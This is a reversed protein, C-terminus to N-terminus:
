RDNEPGAELRATWLHGRWVSRAVVIRAGVFTAGSIQDGTTLTRLVAHTKADLELLETMGNGVLMRRGDSSYRAYHIGTRAGAALPVSKHTTLDLLRTAGAVEGSVYALVPSTPSGAPLRANEVVAVPPAHGDATVSAIGRHSVGDTAFYVAGDSGFTPQNDSGRTTLAHPPASGDLPMAWIGKEVATFAVWKADASVAPEVPSLGETKLVRPPERETLDLVWLQTPGTRDSVVVVKDDQGPIGAPDRDTWDIHPFLPELRASATGKPASVVSLDGGSTCTSWVVRDGQRSIALGKTPAVLPDGVPAPAGGEVPVEWLEKQDTELLRSFLVHEGDHALAITEDVDGKYIETPAEVGPEYRLIGAGAHTSKDYRRAFARGDPLELVTTLLSGQPATLRRTALNTKVDIREISGGYGAWVASGDPSWTPRTQGERVFVPASSGDIPVLYAASKESQMAIFVARTGDPSLQAGFQWGHDSTVTRRAGGDLDLLVLHSDDGFTGDYLVSAGDPSLSPFEECGPDFTLRRSDRPHFAFGAPSSAERAIVATAVDPRARHGAYWVFLLSAGAITATSATLTVARSRTKGNTSRSAAAAAAAGLSGVSRMSQSLPVTPASVFEPAEIKMPSISRGSDGGPSAGMSALLAEMTAFRDDPAKKLARAVAAAVEPAIGLVVADLNPPEDGLIANMVFSGQGTWPLEGRLLEYALVGWAFQDVRADITQGRISEPAMYAPTGAVSSGETQTGASGLASPDMPAGRSADDGDARRAIGFDLVKVVGDDRVIVNEPKVDRHMLGARHAAALARAIEIMWRVRDALSATTGILARLSQGTVLEMVIFPTGEHEGVDFLAVVNPHDLAAAMRAERLIRRVTGQSGHSGDDDHARRLLKVAVRRHLMEDYARYVEGMGGQGLLGEIVYRGVRDGPKM